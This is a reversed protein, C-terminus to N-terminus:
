ARRPSRSTKKGRGGGPARIARRLAKLEEPLLDRLDGPGMDPDRVPGIATRKLRQVPHGVRFFLERVEHTRGETVEIRWWTNGAKKTRGERRVSRPRILHGEIRAGARLRALEGDSLDGKVKVLYERVVGHRPHSVLAALEGDNTLLLLGESHYDLRGVPFIRERVHSRVLDIVTTREEPDECTTMVGRPKYFLLYRLTESAPLRRGDVKIHDTAPDASQGLTARQGNVTVRGERILEEAARRSCMGSRAIIKQLREAPM